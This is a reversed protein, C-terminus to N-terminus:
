YGRREEIMHNWVLNLDAWQQDDLRQDWEEQDNDTPTIFGHERATIESEDELHGEKALDTLMEDYFNYEGGMYHNGLQGLVCSNANSLELEGLVILKEWRPFAIDLMAMGRKVDLITDEYDLVQLQLDTM